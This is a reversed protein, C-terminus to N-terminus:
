ACVHASPPLPGGCRLMEVKSRLIRTADLPLKLRVRDVEGAPVVLGQHM